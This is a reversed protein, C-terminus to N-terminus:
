FCLPELGQEVASIAKNKYYELGQQSIIGPIAVATFLLRACTFTVIQKEAKEMLAEDETDLYARLFVKWIHEADEASLGKLIPLSQRRQENKASIHYITCMSMMDFIPHGMGSTSLDIFMPKGDQLMVNGPHCDGHIFTQRDPINEYIQRLKTVEETTCVLGELKPLLAMSASRLPEFRQPDVQIQHMGKMTKAFQRVYEDRHELNELMVSALDKANLLEYVTGFCEGVKVVDYPIATPVGSVFASRAKKIERGIMRDFDIQPAFVKVITEKDLRYVKATAGAGIPELGDISIRRYAKKVDLLETFGTTEFIDYVERSVNEVTIPKGAQKRLKMLVRLGASSIYSLEAADLVPVQGQYQALLALLEKEVETANNTDIRGQLAIVFRGNEMTHSINQM